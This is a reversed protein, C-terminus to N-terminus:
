WQALAIVMYLRHKIPVELSLHMIFIVMISSTSNSLPLSLSFLIFIIWLDLSSLDKVFYYFYFLYILLNSNCTDFIILNVNSCSALGSQTVIILSGIESLFYLKQQRWDCLVRSKIGISSKPDNRSQQVLQAWRLQGLHKVKETMKMQAM